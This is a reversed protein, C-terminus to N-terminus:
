KTAIGRQISASHLGREYEHHAPTIERVVREFEERRGQRVRARMISGYM